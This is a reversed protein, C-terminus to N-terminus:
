LQRFWRRAPLECFVVTNRGSALLLEWYRRCLPREGWWRDELLWTERVSLVRVGDVELPHGQASVRVRAPRPQYLSRRRASM